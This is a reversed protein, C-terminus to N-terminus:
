ESGIGKNLLLPQQHCAPLKFEPPYDVQVLYLGDPPATMAAQTRDRALLLETIWEPKQEGRGVCLLSGVINRVMHQLFANAHIDFVLLEHQRYWNASFVNRNPTNSQCGAARFSSFDREGLLLQSARQMLNLDLEARSQTLKGAFLASAIKSNHVFYLYRRGTASFRAHFESGVEASWLVRVTPPLLSNVGRVWAKDGRDVPTDFHVIQCTAHVGADTRGACAVTILTDAVTSLAGELSAQVTPLEPAAQKQWGSYVSGDYEIALAIRHEAPISELSDPSM